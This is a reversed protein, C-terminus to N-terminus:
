SERQSDLTANPAPYNRRVRTPGTTLEILQTTDHSTDAHAARTPLSILRRRAAPKRKRRSALLCRLRREVRGRPGQGHDAPRGRALPLDPRLPVFILSEQPKFGLLHPLAAILEDPSHISLTMGRLHTRQEPM